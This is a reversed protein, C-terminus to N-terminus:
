PARTPAPAPSAPWLPRAATGADPLTVGLLLREFEPEPLHTGAEFTDNGWSFVYVRKGIAVMVEAANCKQLLHGQVTGVQISPWTSPDGGDCGQPVHGVLDDHYAKAWAEYTGSGLDWALAGITTDTGPVTFADTATDGTSAPDDAVMTAPNATWSAPLVVTYGYLPSTFRIRAASASGSPDASPSAPNSGSAPSPTVQRATAASPSASAPAPASTARDQGCATVLLPAVAVLVVGAGYLCHFRNM